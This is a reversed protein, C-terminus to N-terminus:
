DIIIVVRGERLLRINTSSSHLKQAESKPIVIDTRNEGDARLAVVRYPNVGIRKMRTVRSPQHTYVAIGNEICRRKDIIGVGYVEHGEEDIVKPFLAPNLGLGRADIVIGTYSIGEEYLPILQVGPPVEQDEPWPRKCTPCAYRTLLPAKKVTDPYLIEMLSGTVDITYRNEVVGNSYFKKVPVRPYRLLNEFKMRKYPHRTLYEELTQNNNYYISSTLNEVMEMISDSSLPESYSYIEFSLKQWNFNVNVGQMVTTILVMTMIM